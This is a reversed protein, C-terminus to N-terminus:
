RKLLSRVEEGLLRRKEESVGKPLNHSLIKEVKEELKGPDSGLKLTAIRRGGLELTVYRNFGREVLRAVLEGGDVPIRREELLGERLRAQAAPPATLVYAEGVVKVALLMAQVRLWMGSLRGGLRVKVDLDGSAKEAIRERLRRVGLALAEYARVRDFVIVEHKDELRLEFEGKPALNMYTFRWGSCGWELLSSVPNEINVSRATLSEPSAGEAKAQDVAAAAVLRSSAPFAKRLKKELYLYAQLWEPELGALYEELEGPSVVYGYWWTSSELVVRALDSPSMRLVRNAVGEDVGYVNVAIRWVLGDSPLAKEDGLSRALDLKAAEKESRRSFKNSGVFDALRYAVVLIRYDRAVNGYAELGGLVKLLEEFGVYGLLSAALVYNLFSRVDSEKLRGFVRFVSEEVGAGSRVLGLAADCLAEVEFIERLGELEEDLGLGYKGVAYVLSMERYFSRPTSLGRLPELGAELYARRLLGIAEDRTAAEGALLRSLVDTVVQLRRKQLYALCRGWHETVGASAFGLPKTLSNTPRVEAEM